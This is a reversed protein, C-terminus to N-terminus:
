EAGGARSAIRSTGSPVLVRPLGVGIGSGIAVLVASMVFPAGPVARINFLLGGAASGITVGLSAAATQRGLQWGQARGATASIWYTLIPSVVGASSAVGGIVALMLWFGSALPVLFLGAVLMFLAPAILWRTNDVKILPSFVLAQMAFMVLSCETFMLAIQYPTLRLEQTGRLALGVEFVGVGASVIFTLVLLRTVLASMDKAPRLANKASSVPARRNPEALAVVVSVLAALIATSALPVTLSGATTVIGFIAGGIRAASVGLTPGLLFGAISAMSVFALRRGRQEGPPALDGITASAIPTVGAAFLGSLFRQLYIATLNAALSFVVTTASFGFLAALLLNRRGYSDSLRGWLPAGLFLALAYTATLLGTHRPVQSSTLAAGVFREVLGPLLPLVVGYGVSVTFVALMLAIMTTGPVGGPQKMDTVVNQLDRQAMKWDDIAM